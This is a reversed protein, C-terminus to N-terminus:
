LFCVTCGRLVSLKERETLISDYLLKSFIGLMLFASITWIRGNSRLWFPLVMSWNHINSSTTAKQTKTNHNKWLKQFWKKLEVCKKIQQALFNLTTQFCIISKQRNQISCQAYHYSILYFLSTKELNKLMKELKRLKVSKPTIKSFFIKLLRM